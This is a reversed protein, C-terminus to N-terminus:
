CTTAVLRDAYEIHRSALVSGRNALYGGIGTVRHAPKTALSWGWGASPSPCM